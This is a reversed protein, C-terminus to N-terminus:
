YTKAETANAQLPVPRNALKLLCIHCIAEEEALAPAPEKWGM